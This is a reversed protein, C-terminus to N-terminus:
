QFAEENVCLRRVALMVRRASQTSFGKALLFAGFRTEGGGARALPAAQIQQPTARERIIYIM